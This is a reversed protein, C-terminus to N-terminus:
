HGVVTAPRMTTMTRIVTVATMTMTMTPITPITAEQEETVRITEPLAEEM